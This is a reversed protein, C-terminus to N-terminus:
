GLSAGKEYPLYHRDKAVMAGAKHLCQRDELETSLGGLGVDRTTQGFFHIARQVVRAGFLIDDDMSLHHTVPAAACLTEIMTRAFGGCGSRNPQYVVEIGRTEHLATLIPHRFPQGQNVLIIRRLAPEAALLPILEAMTDALLDERNYTCLDISLRVDRM